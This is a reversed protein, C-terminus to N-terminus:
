ADVALDCSHPDRRGDRDDDFRQALRCGPHRDDAASSFDGPGGRQCQDHHRHRARAPQYVLPKRHESGVASDSGHSHWSHSGMRFHTALAPERLCDPVRGGRDDRSQRFHGAAARLSRDLWGGFPAMLGLLLLNLSAASAIQTRSWGFEAELPHILVSPASRLGQLRSTLQLFGTCVIFWGYFFRFPSRFARSGQHKMSTVCEGSRGCFGPVDFAFKHEPCWLSLLQVACARTRTAFM